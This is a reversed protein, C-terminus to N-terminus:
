FSMSLVPLKSIKHRLRVELKFYYDSHFLKGAHQHQLAKLNPM